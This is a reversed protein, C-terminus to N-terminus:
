CICACTSSLQIEPLLLPVIQINVETILLALPPSFSLPMEYPFSRVKRLMSCHDTEPPLPFQFLNSFICPTRIRLSGSKSSSIAFCFCWIQCFFM